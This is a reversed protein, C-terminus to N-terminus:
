FMAQACCSMVVAYVPVLGGSCCGKAHMAYCHPFQNNMAERSSQHLSAEELMCQNGVMHTPETQTVKAFSAVVALPQRAQTLLM